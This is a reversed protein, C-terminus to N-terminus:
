VKMVVADFKISEKRTEGLCRLTTSDAKNLLEIGDTSSAQFWTSIWDSPDQWTAKEAMAYFTLSLRLTFQQGTLTAALNLRNM